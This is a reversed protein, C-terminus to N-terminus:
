NKLFSGAMQSNLFAQKQYKKVKFLLRIKRNLRGSIFNLNLITYERQSKKNTTLLVFYENLLQRIETYISYLWSKRFGFMIQIEREILYLDLTIQSYGQAKFLRKAYDFTIRNSPIFHKLKLNSFHWIEYGMKKVLLCFEIDEGGILKKGTRGINLPKFNENHVKEFISKRVVMGAGWVSDVAQSSKNQNGIAYTSEIVKFWDPVEKEVICENSGAMIGIKANNQFNDFANQLYMSDLWNDDDCFVILEGKAKSVGRKRAHFLGPVQEKCISLPIHNGCETWTSEVVEITNDVCNNDVVIIECSLSNLNQAALHELTPKIRNQSNFCCVIISLDM